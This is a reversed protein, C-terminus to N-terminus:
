RSKMARRACVISRTSLKWTRTSTRSLSPSEAPVGSKPESRGSNLRKPKPTARRSRIAMSFDGGPLTPRPPRPHVADQRVRDSDPIRPLLSRPGASRHVDAEERMEGPADNTNIPSGACPANVGAFFDTSLQPFTNVHTPTQATTWVPKHCLGTQFVARVGVCRFVFGVCDV